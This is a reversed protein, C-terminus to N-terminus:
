NTSAKIIKIKDFHSNTNIGTLIYIGPSLSSLNIQLQRTGANNNQSAFQMLVRGHIDILQFSITNGNTHYSVTTFNNAPNPYCNNLKFSGLSALNDVATKITEVVLQDVETKNGTIDTGTVTVLFSNYTKTSDILTSNFQETITLNSNDSWLTAIFDLPKDGEAIFITDKREGVLNTIFGVPAENDAVITLMEAISQNGCIDIATLKSQLQFNVQNITGDMQQTTSHTIVRSQVFSNDSVLLSNLVLEAQEIVNLSDTYNLTTSNNFSEITPATTDEIKFIPQVTTSNGRVDTFTCTASAIFNFQTFSSDTTQSSSISIVTDLPYSSNDYISCQHLQEQVLLQSNLGAFYEVIITDIPLGSLTPPTTDDITITREMSDVLNELNGAHWRGIKNGEFYGGKFKQVAIGYEPYTSDFPAFESSVIETATEYNEANTEVAPEGLADTSLDPESEGIEVYKADDKMNVNTSHPNERVLYDSIGDDSFGPAVKATGNSLDFALIQTDKNSWEGTFFNPSEGFWYINAQSDKNMSFDGPVVEKDNQPEWKFIQELKTPDDKENPDVAGVFAANIMHGGAETKTGDANTIGGAVTAVRYVPLNFRGNTVNKDTYNGIYKWDELNTAGTFNIATVDSFEGCEFVGSVYKEKDTEDIAIMKKLWDVKEARRRSIGESNVGELKNLANWDGPLYKIKGSAFDEIMKGDDANVTGDGNVDAYDNETGMYIEQADLFNVVKDSNVDGDGYARTSVNNPRSFMDMGSLTSYDFNTQGKASYAGAGAALVAATLAVKPAYKMVAKGTARAMGSGVAKVGSVLKDAINKM